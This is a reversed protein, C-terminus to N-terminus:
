SFLTVRNEQKNTNLFQCFLEWANEKQEISLHKLKGLADEFNKKIPELYRNSAIMELVRERAKRIALEKVFRVKATVARELMGLVDDISVPKPQENKQRDLRLMMEYNYRQRCYDRKNDDDLKQQINKLIGFFYPLNRRNANRQTSKLYATETLRIAELEYGKITREARKLEDPTADLNYHRIVWHLHDM